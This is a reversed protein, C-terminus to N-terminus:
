LSVCVLWHVNEKKKALILLYNFKRSNLDFHLYHRIEKIQFSETHAKKYYM